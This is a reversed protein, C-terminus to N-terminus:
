EEMMEYFKDIDTYIMEMLPNYYLDVQNCNSLIKEKSLKIGYNNDLLDMLDYIDIAKYKFVIEEVLDYSYFKEKTRKFVTIGGM